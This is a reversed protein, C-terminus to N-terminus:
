ELMMDLLELIKGSIESNHNIEAVLEDNIRSQGIQLDILGDIDSKINYIQYQTLAISLILLVSIAILIKNKM